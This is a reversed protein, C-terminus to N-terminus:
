GQSMGTPRPIATANHTTFYEILEEYFISQNNGKGNYRIFCHNSFDFM